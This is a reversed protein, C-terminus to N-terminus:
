EIILPYRTAQNMQQRIKIKHILRCYDANNPLDNVSVVGNNEIGYVREIYWIALSGILEFEKGLTLTPDLTLGDSLFLKKNTLTGPCHNSKGSIFALWSDHWVKDVLGMSSYRFQVQYLHYEIDRRRKDIWYQLSEDDETPKYTAFDQVFKKMFYYETKLGQNVHLSFRVAKRCANCWLELAHLPSLKLALAHQQQHHPHNIDDRDSEGALYNCSHHLCMVYNGTKPVNRTWLLKKKKPLAKFLSKNLHPCMKSLENSQYLKKWSSDPHCYRIGHLRCLDFWFSEQMSRNYLATNCQVFSSIDKYNLSSLVQLLIEFPFDQLQM